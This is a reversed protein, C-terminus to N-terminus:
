SYLGSNREARGGWFVFVKNNCRIKNSKRRRWLVEVTYLDVVDEWGVVELAQLHSSPWSETIQVKSVLNEVEPHRIASINLRRPCKALASCTM